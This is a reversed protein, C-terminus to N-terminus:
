ALSRHSMGHIDRRNRLELVGTEMGMGNRLCTRKSRPLM